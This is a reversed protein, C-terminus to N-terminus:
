KLTVQYFTGHEWWQEDDHQVQVASAAIACLVLVVLRM